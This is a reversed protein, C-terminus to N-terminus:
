PLGGQPAAHRLVLVEGLEDTISRARAYGCQEMVHISAANDADVTGIIATVGPLSAAHGTVARVTEKAYGKGRAAPHLLYVIEQEGPQCHETTKLEAHGLYAGPNDRPAVAWILFRRTEYVSFVREFLVRLDPKDAPASMFRTVEPDSFAQLMGDRDTREYPRLLLRKTTLIPPFDGMTPDYVPEAAAAPSREALPPHVARAPAQLAAPFPMSDM